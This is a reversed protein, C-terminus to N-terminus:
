QYMKNKEQLKNTYVSDKDFVKTPGSGKRASYQFHDGYSRTTSQINMAAQSSSMVDTDRLFKIKFDSGM